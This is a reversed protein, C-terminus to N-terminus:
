RFIFTEKTELGNETRFIFFDYVDGQKLGKLYEGPPSIYATMVTLERTKGSRAGLLDNDDQFEIKINLTPAYSGSRKSRPLKLVKAKVWAGPTESDWSAAIQEKLLQTDALSAIYRVDKESFGSNELWSLNTKEFAEGTKPDEVANKILFFGKVSGEQWVVEKNEVWAYFTNDKFEAGKFVKIPRYSVKQVTYMGNSREIQTPGVKVLAVQDADLYNQILNAYYWGSDADYSQASSQRAGGLLILLLLLPLTNKM